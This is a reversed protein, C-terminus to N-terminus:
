RYVHLEDELDSTLRALFAERDRPDHFGSYTPRDDDPLDPLQQATELDHVKNKLINLELQKGALSRAIEEHFRAMKNTVELWKDEAAKKFSEFFSSLDHLKAASANANQLQQQEAAQLRLADIQTQLHHVALQLQAVEMPTFNRMHAAQLVGDLGSVM